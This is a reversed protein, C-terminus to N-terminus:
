RWQLHIHGINVKKIMNQIHGRTSRKLSTNMLFYRLKFHLKPHKIQEDLKKRHMVVGKDDVPANYGVGVM